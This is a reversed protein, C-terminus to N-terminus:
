RFHVLTHVYWSHANPGRQVQLNAQGKTASAQAMQTVEPKIGVGEGNFNASLQVHRNGQAAHM